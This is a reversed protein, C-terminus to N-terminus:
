QGIVIPLYLDHAHAPPPATPTTTPLSVVTTATPTAEATSEGTATPTATPLSVVTTATPTAEVTSEGTATPTAEATSEGTATPTAEATSESTATPTNTPASTATATPEVVAPRGDYILNDMCITGGSTGQKQLIGFDARNPLPSNGLEVQREYGSGDITLGVKDGPADWVTNVRFFGNAPAPVWPMEPGGVPQYRMSLANNVNGIQLAAVAVPADIRNDAYHTMLTLIAGNGINFGALNLYVETEVAVNPRWNAGLGAVFRPGISGAPLQLGAGDVGCAATLRAGTAKETIVYNLRAADNLTALFRGRGLDTCNFRDAFLHGSDPAAPEQPFNGALFRDMVNRTIRDVAPQGLGLVWGTTGASFVAGGAPTTYLGMMAVGNLDRQKSYVRTLGLITFNAPTGTGAVPGLITSGDAACNFALGDSEKDHISTDVTPGKGFLQDEQLGTGQYIWHNANIAYYGDGKGGPYGGYPWHLGTITFSSDFIPRDWNVDTSLEASKQPDKKWDKYGVMTRGNDEFRVQWWMTNGSLNMFRGGDAIFRSLRQRMDWTWYESHGAIIVLDYGDLLHPVFDLDYTAAYDMQYGAQEAWTVFHSEWRDYLGVGNAYPRDFSVWQSKVTDGFGYLSGGGFDNYAQNTNVSSLFLIRSKPQAPRVYFLTRTSRSGPRPIDVTYVGSPWDEPVTFTAGVPWGCGDDYGGACGHNGTEVDPITGMLVRTAGERYISLTYKAGYGNSIHFNLSEGPLVSVKSPYAGASDDTEGGAANDVGSNNDPAFMAANDGSARPRCAGAFLVLLLLALRGFRRRIMVLRAIWESKFIM